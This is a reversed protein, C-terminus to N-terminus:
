LLRRLEDRSIGLLALISLLVAPKLPQRHRPITLSRGPHDPHRLTAHSGRQRDLERGLKLAVRFMREGSVQPLRAM